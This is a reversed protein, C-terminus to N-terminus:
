AAPHEAIRARVLTTVTTIRDRAVLKAGDADRVYFADVVAPGFTSVRATIVDLGADVLAQTIRHLQGVADAARVEIVTATDSAHNDVLITTEVLSREAARRAARPRYLRAREDLRSGLDLTGALVAALDDALGRGVPHRDHETEVTFSELAIGGEGAVDAARVDLGHLSLVGAVAALLGPRDPAAVTVTADGVAVRVEWSRRAAEMLARHEDTVWSTAPGAAEGALLRGIREVLDAVLGAKWSGWASPGTAISDAETLAALLELTTRDGIEQAAREATAPDNLDRRTAVEPLLLHLRVMSVLVAADGAPFGMRRAIRLVMTTGVETHDGPSGKGIDHLLTGVVLLDPRGVRHALTAANAAAELLHRDVTFRHYANRQPRNRVTAWEPLYRTLLLRRELAELAAIAPPGALLLRVFCRRVDDPWPEPPAPVKRGLLNLAARSIPLDREAAVAALRLALTPDHEPDADQGLAVEGDVLVVGPEGTDVMDPEATRTRRGRRRRSTRRAWRNWGDDSEWAVSRGAAAVQGLLADADALGLADAVADQEQLLLRNSERGARRHLEVRVLTLVARADDVAAADVYDGLDPVARLLAALATVDRLGGHSEKLDPELLFALDGQAAHRQRVQEDLVPLWAPRQRVWREAAAEFVPEAVRADGCIVRADLLGLAVRLDDGAAKAVEVPRRVSHDLHIGEDWVPYWIADAVRAIDGRGRHLLVVDLDSEPCLERRGYGGVAVLVAGRHDRGIASDFLGTLWQDATDAYARCFADGRLDPRDLLAQRQARLSM